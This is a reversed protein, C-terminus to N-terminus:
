KPMLVTDIIHIIGNKASIDAIVVEADNIFVKGDKVSIKAKEGNAMDIEQGNLKAADQATVKGNFVHYLLIDNLNEKNEPKLLNKLTGTPLSAFANDTPAFVTFSGDVELTDVLGSAQLASVFTKLEKHNVATYVIDAPNSTSPNPAAFVSSIPMFIFSLVLLISTVIIKQKKMIIYKVCREWCKRTKREIIIEKM